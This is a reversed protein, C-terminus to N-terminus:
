APLTLRFCAGTGEVDRLGLDGGLQRALDRCLALGLGVGAAPLGEAGRGREFPRFLRERDAPAIGPGHDRLDLAWRTGLDELTLELLADPRNAAYKCANDVLNLLIQEVLAPVTALTRGELGEPRQELVRLGAQRARDSLRPLLRDLLDTVGLTERQAAGQVELRAYALVNKVLHDLRDAESLLTGYLEQRDAEGPVMGHALLEAYLRFTTLPTRLEHTVASAFAARRRSLDLVLALVAAAGALALLSLAWGLWLAGGGPLGRPDPSPPPPGPELRVPLAAMRGPAPEGGWGEVPALTAQPLQDRLTSLLLDLVQTWDLWCGQLVDRDGVWVQRLMFLDGGEWFFTWPGQTVHYPSRYGRQGASQAQIQRMERATPLIAGHRAMLALLKGRDFRAQLAALRTQATTLRKPDVGLERIRAQFAGEPVLPATFRGAADVQFRLSVLPDDALLMPSPTLNGRPAPGDGPGAVPREAWHFAEYHFYPRSTEPAIFLQLTTEMRWLALRVRDQLDAERRAIAEARASRLVGVTIWGLGGLALLAVLSFLLWPRLRKM